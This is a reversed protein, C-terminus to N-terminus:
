YARGDRAGQTKELEQYLIKLHLEKRAEIETPVEEATAECHRAIAGDLDLLDRVSRNEEASLVAQNDRDEMEVHVACIWRFYEDAAQMFPHVDQASLFDAITGQQTFVGHSRPHTEAHCFSETGATLRRGLPYLRCVLPRDPHVTCGEDGLFVCAGTETQRLYSGERNETYTDIFESTPCRRNRALRAIEYPNVQIRKHHCCKLCRHCVYGFKENRPNKESTEINDM